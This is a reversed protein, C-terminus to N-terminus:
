RRLARVSKVAEDFHGLADLIISEAQAKASPALVSRDGGRAIWGTIHAHRGASLAPDVVKNRLFVQWDEERKEDGNCMGCALLHNHIENSGGAAASVIHDLHGNRLARDLVTGCYACSSQFYSWLASIEVDSPHPDLIATLCRRMKNKAM